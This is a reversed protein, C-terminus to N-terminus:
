ASRWSEPELSHGADLLVYGVARLARAVRVRAPVRRQTRRAAAEMRAAALIERQRQRVTTDLFRDM